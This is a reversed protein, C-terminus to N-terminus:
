TGPLIFLVLDIGRPQQDYKNELAYFASFFYKNFSPVFSKSCVECYDLSSPTMLLIEVKCKFFSPCLSPVINWGCALSRGGGSDLCDCELPIFNVGMSRGEGLPQGIGSM